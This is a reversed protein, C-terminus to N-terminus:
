EAQASFRIDDDIKIDAAYHIGGPSKCRCGHAPCEGVRGTYHDKPM